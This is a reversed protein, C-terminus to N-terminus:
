PFSLSSVVLGGTLGTDYDIIAGRTDIETLATAPATNTITARNLIFNRPNGSLYLLPTGFGPTSGTTGLPIPGWSGTISDKEHFKNRNTSNSWDIYTGAKIWLEAVNGIYGTEAGLSTQWPINCPGGSGTVQAIINQYARKYGRTAAQQLMTLTPGPAIAPPYGYGKSGLSQLYAIFGSLTLPNPFPQNTETVNITYHPDQVQQGGIAWVNLGNDASNNDQQSSFSWMPNNNGVSGVSQNLWIQTDNIYATVVINGAGDTKASIMLHAWNFGTGTFVADVEAPTPYALGNSCMALATAGSGPGNVPSWGLLGSTIDTGPQAQAFSLSPSSFLMGSAAPFDGTGVWVSMSLSTTNTPTPSKNKPINYLAVSGPFFVCGGKGLLNVGGWPPSQGASFGAFSNTPGNTSTDSGRFFGTQTFGTANMGGCDSGSNGVGAGGVQDLFWDQTVAQSPDLAPQMVEIFFNAAGNQSPDPPAVNTVTFLREFLGDASPVTCMSTFIRGAGHINWHWGAAEPPTQAFRSFRRYTCGVLMGNQMLAWVIPVPEELYALRAVGAISLHKAHENLHRGVPKGSFSDYIFEMIRRQSRQQFVITAGARIADVGATSGFRTHEHAQISTPTIPDGLTSASLLTEGHLTGCLVGGQDGMMWQIQNIGSSNLTLSIGSSDLVNGFPDTPSFTATNTGIVQSVGNSTTTDFRNPVAGALWLRGEYFVGCTPYGTTGSYVGLQWEFATTGNATALVMGTITTDFTLTVATTSSYATIVGWAWSGATPAPAWVLTAVGANLQTTGPYTGANVAGTAVWWAGTSDTTFDGAIYTSAPNYIAPQTFIRMSRGVDTAAFVPAGATATVAGTLASLTLTQVQPDNYPGDVMTLKSWAFVPDATLTGQTTIQLEYPPQTPCLIISNVEAQIARLSSLVSVGTYPTVIQRHHLVQAGVLAGVPWNIPIAVGLDDSFTLNTDTTSGGSLTTGSVTIAASTTSLTYANAAVGTSIAYIVLTTLSSDLGYTMLNLPAGAAHLFVLLNTLTGALTGAITVDTGFTITTADITLTDLNAPNASFAAWGQAQTGDTSNVMLVQSRLGVEMAQPYPYLPSSADPFVIQVLDNAAWADSTDGSVNVSGNLVNSSTITQADNTCVVGTQTILRLNLNTFEMGFSCTESGEFPLLNAYTRKQATPVIFQSGGRKTWAGEEVPYGNLSLALATSYRPDDHRGLSLPGWEGGLFNSQDISAYPM